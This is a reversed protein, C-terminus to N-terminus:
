NSGPLLRCRKLNPMRAARAVARDRRNCSPRRKRQWARGALGDGKIARPIGGGDWNPRRSRVPKGPVTLDVNLVEKLSGWKGPRAVLPPAAYDCRRGRAVQRKAHRELAKRWKLTVLNILPEIQNGKPPKAMGGSAPVALPSVCEGYAECPATALGCARTAVDTRRLHRTQWHNGKKM